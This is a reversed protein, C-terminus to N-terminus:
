FLAKALVEYARTLDKRGVVIGMETYTSFVEVVNIGNWALEKLVYVLFGPTQFMEKGFAISIQSLGKMEVLAKEKALIAKVSKEMSESFVFTAQNAGETANLLGGEELEPLSYMRSM